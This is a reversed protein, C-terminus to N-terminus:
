SMLIVPAINPPRRRRKACTAKRRTYTNVSCVITLLFAFSGWRLLMYWLPPGTWERILAVDQHTQNIRLSQNRSESQQIKETAQCTTLALTTAASTSLRDVCDYVPLDQINIVYICSSDAPMLVQVSLIDSKQSSIDNSAKCYYHSDKEMKSCHLRLDSTSQLLIDQHLTHQYWSYHVSTGQTCTCRVTVPLGWCTPRDVLSSLPQLKPKSVPVETVVLQVSTMIDAYIKDIGVWYVGADDLRLGTIQVFLGRRGADIINFRQRKALGDSDMVIECTSRSAGRCWYKKSYRFSKTDYSCVLTIGGGVNANIQKKDCQLQVSAHFLLMLYLTKM